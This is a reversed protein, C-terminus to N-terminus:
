VQSWPSLLWLPPTLYPLFYKGSIAPYSLHLLEAVQVALVRVRAPSHFRSTGAQWGPVGARQVQVQLLLSSFVRYSILSLIFWWARGGRDGGRESLSFRSILVSCSSPANATIEYASTARIRFMTYRGSLPPHLVRSPTYEKRLPTFDM